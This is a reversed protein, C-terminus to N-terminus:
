AAASVINVIKGPVVIVKRVSQGELFRAVAPEALPSYPDPAVVRVPGLETPITIANRLHFGCAGCALVLAALVALRLRKLVAPKLVDTM